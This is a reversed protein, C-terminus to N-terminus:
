QRRIIAFLPTYSWEEKYYEAVTQRIFASSIYDIQM